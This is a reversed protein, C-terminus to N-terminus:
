PEDPDDEDFDENVGYLATIAPGNLMYDFELLHPDKLSPYSISWGVAQEAHEPGDWGVIQKKAVLEDYTSSKGEADLKYRLWIYHIVLLPRKGEVQRYVFGPTNEVGTATRYNKEAEQKQAATLGFAEVDRSSLRSKNGVRAVHENTDRGPYRGEFYITKGGIRKQKLARGNKGNEYGSVIVVDWRPDSLYGSLKDISALISNKQPQGVIYEPGSYGSIFEKVLSPEVGTFGVAKKTDPMDPAGSEILAAVLNDAAKFNATVTEADRILATTEVFSDNLNTPKKEVQGVGRKNRATIMLAKPSQRVMLGYMSPDSNLQRMNRLQAVLEVTADSVFAYWGAADRTMWIRCLDEYGPRYGYWRAMQMLTDYARANRSYYSVLLGELTLGRSLRYGGVAIAHEVNPDEYDLSDKSASNILVVRIQRIVEYLEDCIDNWAYESTDFESLWTDHLDRLHQNKLAEPLLAYNRAAVRVSRLYEKLLNTVQAQVATYPSVNVMMTTHKDSDGRLARIASSLIFARTAEALSSPLCPIVIDKKHKSPMIDDIDTIYRVYKPRDEEDVDHLVKEAGFYTTSSELTYIFSRPFIDEGENDTEANPDIFINAFPTATYGVYSSTHFHKLLKRILSNIVSVDDQAYKVNISANDAEDDILLLPGKIEPHTMLWEILSELVSKNKKIVFIWKDSNGGSGMMAQLRRKGFDQIRSTGYNWRKKASILGVGVPKNDTSRLGTFGEEIRQQTQSRLVNYIGALVIIVKYGADAARSMVGIYNSTKGSQVDAVVLGRRDVGNHGGDHRPDAVLDLINLTDDAMSKVVNREWGKVDTLYQEYRDWFYWDGDQIEKVWPVCEKSKYAFGSPKNVPMEHLYQSILVETFEAIEEESLDCGAVPALMKVLGPVLNSYMDRVADESVKDDPLKYLAKRVTPDVLPKLAMFATENDRM